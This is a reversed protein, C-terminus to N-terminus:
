KKLPSCEVILQNWSACGEALEMMLIELKQCKVELCKGLYSRLETLNLYTQLKSKYVELEAAIVINIFIETDSDYTIIFQKFHKMFLKSVEDQSLEDILFIEFFFDNELSDLSV